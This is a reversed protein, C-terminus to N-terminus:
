ITITWNDLHGTVGRTTDRIRLKWVGNRNARSMDTYFVTHVGSGKDRRNAAKLRRKTGNPAVLEIALDGRRPHTIHVEVRTRKAAKGSCGAIWIGSQVTARDRVALHPTNTQQWCPAPPAPAPQYAPAPAPAPAAAPAQETPGGTNLLRNPTAAGPDTIVGARARGTLQEAIAAPTADPQQALLLAAAGAVHPAAMSTGNMAAVATDSAAYASPIGVGPAYLDVCGGTNSFSARRDTADSAAVTVAPSLRAPSATCADTAQNGAAVLYTLGSAISARVAHDLADSAPGGLSVNVVAPKAAHATIWDVGAIIQSYAGSGACDLVRVAVLNAAKAVGYRTGAITGAVHTGHGNCDSADADNDIFDYGSRARGGFETHSTRIGTDLVYATVASATTPYTYSRSLPLAAQDIRDLGWSPPDPQVEAFRVRRDQQVYAVAPNAALRRARRESIRVSFGKVTQDYSREATGGFRAALRRAAARVEDPEAAGDRLVVIYRDKITEPGGAGRIAGEAFAPGSPVLMASVAVVTATVAAAVRGVVGWRQAAM